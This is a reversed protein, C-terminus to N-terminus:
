ERSQPTIELELREKDRQVIVQVAQGVKLAEIAFTYDYINEIKKGALSVIVDGGRIGAQAAPGNKAVGSLKVGRVEEAYDPVTGLFARLNARRQGEEPREQAVYDPAQERLTLSRTVLGMFQAIQAAGDYNLKDPTDRPTHYDNHSGTFASLIPVGRMFFVSADTPVYSDNQASIPLGVLTNRQEIESPWISSSGVGHLVLNEGLRGVMDLNMCAAIAPYISDSVAHASAHATPIAHERTLREHLDKVFHSSGLLGLEEGSWAAFLVDRTMSLKGQRRQDVLYDAIELMAAVGSANDDAGFHIQDREEDRALSSSSVGKGLHDIHAGILIVEDSPVEGAILRGLVNRGTKKIQEINITVSLPTDLAVGMMPEGTDLERQWQELNRESGSLLQEALSDSISIVPLSSGSLTGDFRLPILKEKFESRPGSVVILGRAGRDRVLMTKYRLSAYRALEQRREPTIDGPLYRLVMVWKDKVDLHVFSDYEEHEDTGPAVIGYGAFVVPAEDFTGTQSFAVPRWQENIESERDGITLRNGSGLDVGSTFDFVQYWGDEDGAPQLELQDWYAAVYATALSEGPTGTLRGELEPRCLYDVHRMIDQAAFGPEAQRSADEAAQKANESHQDDVTTNADPSSTTSSVLGLAERAADHDWDGIFLHAKKNSTRSSTWALQRGDPTFVPLGDFRDTSTVRVPTSKGAVDVLYLEFNSFGHLNTAFILYEGSPHYYPAWSMAGLRTLQLPDSGDTNMTMVEAVAGNEAFRRWCVREGDPSFFPGGDYGLVNTLRRVNTGDANMMYIDMLSAPDHEFLAQEEDTLTEAYARRNSSFVIQSGDPSCSAEADYGLEHTLQQYGDEGPIDVFLDYHEDFDWSYRKKRGTEREKLERQQKELSAPDKHTSAFLVRQRDPFIWACTTKGHGPSVRRTDGTELDMLYIQFFPNDQERESQFVLQKGDRAFYGEGARRGEFTLQRVRHLFRHEVDEDGSSETEHRHRDGATPVPNALTEDNQAWLSTTMCCVVIWCTTAAFRIVIESFQM